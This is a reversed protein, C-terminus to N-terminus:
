YPIGFSCGRVIGGSDQMTSSRWGFLEWCDRFCACIPAFLSYYRNFSASPSYENVIRRHMLMWDTLRLLFLLLYFPVRAILRILRGFHHILSPHHISGCTLRGDNWRVSASASSLKVATENRRLDYCRHIRHRHRRRRRRHHHYCYRYYYYYNNSSFQHADPLSNRLYPVSSLATNLLKSGTQFHNRRWDAFCRSFFGWPPMGILCLYFGQSNYIMTIQSRNSQAQLLLVSVIKLGFIGDPSFKLSFSWLMNLANWHTKLAHESCTWLMNLAHESCTWLMNLAHESRKWLMKLANESCKWLMKLANESCIRIM